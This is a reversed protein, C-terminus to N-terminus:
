LELPLSNWYNLSHYCFRQKGWNRKVKDLHEDSKRRTNYTHVDKNLLFKSDLDILNNMLKYVAVCRHFKRRQYLKIWGLTQLAETWSSDYPVNLIAKAAKNQVNQLTNMLVNNNKDGWVVDAYELVPLILANYLTIRAQHPLLYKIRKLLGIRQMSKAVITDVHDTWTMNQNITVGLYKICDVRDLTVNEVNISVDTCSKLKQSGGILMFNTKKNNLTLLNINFWDVVKILDNNLHQEIDMVSASSYYLVTDDAYM